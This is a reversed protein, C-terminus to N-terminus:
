SLELFHKMLKGFDLWANKGWSKMARQKVRIPKLPLWDKHRNQNSLKICLVGLAIRIAVANM